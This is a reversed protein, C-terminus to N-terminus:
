ITKGNGYSVGGACNKQFQVPIRKEGVREPDTTQKEEIFKLFLKGLCSTRSITNILEYHEKDTIKTRGFRTDPTESPLPSPSPSPTRTRTPTPTKSPKMTITPLIESASPSPTSPPWVTEKTHTPNIGCGSTALLGLVTATHISKRLWGPMSLLADSQEKTLSSDKITAVCSGYEGKVTEVNM